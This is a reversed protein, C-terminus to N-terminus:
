VPLTISICSAGRGRPRTAYWKDTREYRRGAAGSGNGTELISESLARTLRDSFWQKCMVRLKEANALFKIVDKTYNKTRLYPYLEIELGGQISITTSTMSSLMCFWCMLIPQKKESALNTFPHQEFVPMILRYEIWRKCRPLCPHRLADIEVCMCVMSQCRTPCFASSANNMPGLWHSIFDVGRRRRRGLALLLIRKKLRDRSERM